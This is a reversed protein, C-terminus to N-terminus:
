ELDDIDTDISLGYAVKPPDTDALNERILPRGGGIM